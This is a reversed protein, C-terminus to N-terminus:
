RKSTPRGKRSAVAVSQFGTFLSLWIATAGGAAIWALTTYSSFTQTIFADITNIAHAFALGGSMMVVGILVLVLALLAALGAIEYLSFMPTARYATAALISARLDTPPEELPLNFLANDLADDNYFNM